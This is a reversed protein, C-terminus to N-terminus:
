NREPDTAEMLARAFERAQDPQIMLHVMGQCGDLEVILGYDASPTITFAHVHVIGEVGDPVPPYTGTMFVAAGAELKAM